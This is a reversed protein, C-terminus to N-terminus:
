ERGASVMETSSAKSATSAHYSAGHFRPPELQRQVQPTAAAAASTATALWLHPLVSSLSPIDMLPQLAQHTCCGRGMAMCPLPLLLLRLLVLARARAKGWAAQQQCTATTDPPVDTCTGSAAPNTSATVNGSTRATGVFSTQNSGCSNSAPGAQSNLLAVNSKCLHSSGHWLDVILLLM